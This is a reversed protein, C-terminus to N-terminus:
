SSRAFSQMMLDIYWSQVPHAAQVVSAAVLTDACHVIGAIMENLWECTLSDM